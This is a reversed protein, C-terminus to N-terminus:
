LLEEAQMLRKETQKARASDDFSDSPNGQDQGWDSSSSSDTERGFGGDNPDKLLHIAHESNSGWATRLKVLEMATKGFNSFKIPITNDRRSLYM